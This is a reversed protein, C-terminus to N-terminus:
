HVHNRMNTLDSLSTHPHLAVASERAWRAWQGNGAGAACRALRQGERISTVRMRQGGNLRKEADRRTSEATRRADVLTKTHSRLELRAADEARKRERHADVEVQLASHSQAAASQFDALQTRLDHVTSQSQAIRSLVNAILPLQNFLASPTRSPLWVQDSATPLAPQPQSQSHSHSFSHQHDSPSPSVLRIPYNHYCIMLLRCWYLLRFRTNVKGNKGTVFDRHQLEDVFRQGENDLLLGGVGRLAEAALFKVKAEPENPGVLGTPHVQVKEVDIGSASISMKLGHEDTGALFHM